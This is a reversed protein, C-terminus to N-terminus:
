GGKSRMHALKGEWIQSSSKYFEIRSGMGTGAKPKETPSKTIPILTRLSTRFAKWSACPAEDIHCPSISYRPNSTDVKFCNCNCAVEVGFLAALERMAFNSCSMSPGSSSRCCVNSFYLAANLGKDVVDLIVIPWFVTENVNFPMAPFTL